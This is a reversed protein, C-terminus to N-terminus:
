NKNAISTLTDGKKVIYM